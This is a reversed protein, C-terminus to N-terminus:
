KQTKVMKMAPLADIVVVDCKGAKAAAFAVAGSKYEKLEVDLGAAIADQILLAGTTGSQVGITLGELQELKTYAKEEASVIYQVSSYYPISFDVSEKREDDITIGAAGVANDENKVKGVITNFDVDIVNMKMNLEKCVWGMLWIDVGIVDGNDDVFEYPEFGSNTYVNLTGGTCSSLDAVEITNTPTEDSAIATYYTVAADIDKNLIVDNMAELIEAKKTANKGVCLGYEEIEASELANAVFTVKPGCATFAFTSIVALTLAAITLLAKKM